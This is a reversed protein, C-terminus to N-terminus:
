VTDGGAAHRTPTLAADIAERLTQHNCPGLESSSTREKALIITFDAADSTCQFRRKQAELWDLRKADREAAALRTKLQVNEVEWHTANDIAMYALASNGDRERVAADREARATDREIMFREDNEQKAKKYADREAKLAAREREAKVARYLTELYLQHSKEFKAKQTDRESRLMVVEEALAHHENSAHPYANFEAYVAEIPEKPTPTHAAGMSPTGGNPTM